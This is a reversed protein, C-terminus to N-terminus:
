LNFYILPIRAQAPKRSFMDVISQVVSPDADYGLAKYIIQSPKNDSASAVMDWFNSDTNPYVGVSYNDGVKALAAAKEVAKELTALEDVLGLKKATIASWVRGQALSEVNERKLHRGTSVRTVFKDYINEISQQMAQTQAATMPGFMNPFNGNPNTSVTNPTVGLKAALGSFEPMMGFVGISGTITLPDAYIADAHCSIWYGGSAAYDGMSVVIPKKQKQFYALAEAIEESGFVSGGPSNVRLVMAKVNNNDALEIIEPVLTECNIGKDSGEAIEGCAYLVAVQDSTTLSASLGATQSTLTSPSVVNLKKAEVGVMHALINRMERHPILRDVLGAKLTIEADKLMIVGNVLTDITSPQMRRSQAMEDRMFQWMTSYITDLQARAPESMEDYLMPEVASKYTGVKFVQFSVGIKDLLSKFYLTTGSIGHLAVGGMNNLYLSDAVSAVYYDGQSYSDGYAVVKKGSKKFKEVAQRLAHLTAPSANVGSCKIYLADIDDNKSGCELGNVLEDLAQRKEANGNILIGFPVSGASAREEITGELSLCLVSHATVNESVGGRLSGVSAVMSIVVVVAVVGFLVLAIWAGMFSTLLQRFFKKLM